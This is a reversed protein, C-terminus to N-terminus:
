QNGAERRRSALNRRVEEDTKQVNKGWPTENRFYARLEEANEATIVKFRPDLPKRRPAQQQPYLDSLLLNQAEVRLDHIFCDICQVAHLYSEVLRDLAEFQQDSLPLPVHMPIETQGGATGDSNRDVALELPLIRLAEQHLPMFAENLDHMASNLADQFVGFEPIAITYSEFIEILRVVSMHMEGNQHSLEPAREKVPSPQIGLNLQYRYSRLSQPLMRVYTSASVEANGALNIGDLLKAYIDARLEARKNEKQLKLSNRHQRGMQWVVILAAIVIGALTVALEVYTQWAAPETPEVVASDQQQAAQGRSPILQKSEDPEKAAHIALSDATQRVPATLKNSTQAATPLAFVIAFLLCFAIAPMCCAPSRRPSFTTLVVSSYIAM